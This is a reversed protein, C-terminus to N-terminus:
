TNCCQLNLSKSLGLTQMNPDRVLVAGITSNMIWGAYYYVSAEISRETAYMIIIGISIVGALWLSM